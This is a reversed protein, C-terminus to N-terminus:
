DRANLVPLYGSAHGRATPHYSEWVPVALDHLWDDGSCLEHGDFVPRVDGFVFGHASARGSIVSNLLDAADNIAERKTEGLGVCWWSPEIYMRPYGLVVVRANPARSRIASYVTNLRGPLTNSIYSRATALRNLCTSESGTVCTTMADAFGADNGGITITVLGTSSNLSGLQRNTVDTTVAGSCAVFAFSSPSNAAAWRAPYANNSRHCDGSSSIYSGAGNGSSYSDGLAVYAPGAAQAPGAGTLALLFAFILVSVASLSRTPRM